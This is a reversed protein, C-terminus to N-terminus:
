TEGGGLRDLAQFAELTRSEPPAPAPLRARWIHGDHTTLKEVHSSRRVTHPHPNPRADKCASGAQALLRLKWGRGHHARSPTHENVMAGLEPVSRGDANTATPRPTACSRM